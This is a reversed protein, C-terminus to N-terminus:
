RVREHPPGTIEPDYVWAPIVGETACSECGMGDCGPCALWAQPRTRAYALLGAEDFDEVHRATAAAQGLVYARLDAEAALRPAADGLLVFGAAVTFVRTVADSGKKFQPGQFLCYRALAFLEEDVEPDALLEIAADFLAASDEPDPTVTYIPGGGTEMQSADLGRAAVRAALQQAVDEAARGRVLRNGPLVRGDPLEVTNQLEEAGPAWAVFRHEAATGFRAMAEFAPTSQGGTWTATAADFASGDRLRGCYGIRDFNNNGATIPTLFRNPDFAIGAGVRGGAEAALGARWAVTAGHAQRLAEARGAQDTAEALATGLQEAIRTAAVAMRHSFQAAAAQKVPDATRLALPSVPFDAATIQTSSM